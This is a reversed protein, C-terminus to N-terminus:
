IMMVTDSSFGAFAKGPPLLGTAVVALMVGLAVVDAPVRDWAFVLVAVALMILCIAIDPTMQKRTRPPVPEDGSGAAPEAQV